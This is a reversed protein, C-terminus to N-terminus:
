FIFPLVAKREKPYDPFKSHYWKHGKYARPIMLSIEAVVFIWPPLIAYASFSTPIPAAAIAFGLWEVWECFYNPYSIFKYLYGQPIAYHEQQQSGGSKAERLKARRIDLLIEDHVINGVFGAAWLGVGFWFKIPTQSDGLFEAAVPSSLYAAMLPGNVINFIAGCLPVILHTRSRSPTRLPSILARNAYHTLFLVALFKAQPVPSSATHDHALPHQFFTYLFTIPSVLEMVIWSKIGDATLWGSTSPAFRGFPADIVLLVPAVISPIIAYWTCAVQYFKEVTISM